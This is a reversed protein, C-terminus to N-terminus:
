WLGISIDVLWWYGHLSKSLFDSGESFLTSHGEHL